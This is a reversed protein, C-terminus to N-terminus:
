NIIQINTKTNIKTLLQILDSKNLAICGETGAYNPRAIHLFIASGKNKIVPNQDKYCEM